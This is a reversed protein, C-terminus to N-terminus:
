GPCRQNEIHVSRGVVGSLYLDPFLNDAFLGRGVADDDRVCVKYTPLILKNKITLAHNNIVRSPNNAAGKRKLLIQQDNIDGM